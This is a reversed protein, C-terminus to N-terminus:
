NLECAYKTELVEGGEVNGVVHEVHSSDESPKVAPRDSDKPSM